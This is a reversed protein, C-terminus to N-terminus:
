LQANMALGLFAPVPWVSSSPAWTFPLEKQQLSASLPGQVAYPMSRATLRDQYGRGGECTRTCVPFLPIATRCCLGQECVRAGVGVCRSMRWCCCTVRQQLSAIGHCAYHNKGLGDKPCARSQLLKLTCHRQTVLVSLGASQLLFPPAEALM